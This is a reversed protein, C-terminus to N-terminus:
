SRPQEQTTERSFAKKFLACYSTSVRKATSLVLRRRWLTAFIRPREGVLHLLSLGHERGCSVLEDPRVFLAPDHTGRPVYGLGEALHVALLTARKSRDITSVHVYGGPRVVRAAEALVRPWAEVHEIVDSLITIDISADDLPLATADGAVCTVHTAQMAHLADLSKVSRDLAVVHRAHTAMRTALIGGGSGIDAVAGWDGQDIGESHLWARLRALRMDGISHLSRFARSDVDGWSAANRDYISADNRKTAQRLM